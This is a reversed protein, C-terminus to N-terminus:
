EHHPAASCPVATAASTVRTSAAGPLTEVYDCTRHATLSHEQMLRRAWATEHEAARPVTLNFACQSCQAAYRAAASGQQLRRRLRWSALAAAVTTGVWLLGAISTM